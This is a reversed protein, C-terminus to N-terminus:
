GSSQRRRRKENECCGRREIPISRARVDPHGVILTLMDHRPMEQRKKMHDLHKSKECLKPRHDQEDDEDDEGKNPTRSQYLKQRDYGQM